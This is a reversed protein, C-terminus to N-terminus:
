RPRRRIGIIAPRPMPSLAGAVNDPWNSGKSVTRSQTFLSGDLKLMEITRTLTSGDGIPMNEGPHQVSIIVQEGVFTPGTFECRAPGYAFPFLQGADPGVLPVCFLFNNGFVGVLNSTNGKQTHDITTQSPTLGEGFGNHLGTSMDTVGWLDGDKDFALNDVAAFGTGDVSGAEGAQVFREWKFSLGTGDIDEEIIKFLAGSQQTAAVPAGYKAVVFIRSDPYGDSGPAGDTLAIIVERRNRPNIEIDEPRASPTGGILNGALFADALAAGRSEYFDGLVKGRYDPLATTENTLDVVFFGGDVTQGAVGNRRPLRIRGNQQATGLAALEVSALDSPSRPDTSTDLLLPIWTGSGDPEFRAVCLTGEEFLRSNAKRTPEGVNDASVFKWVHGGRRDDGMYAVLPRRPSVRLAINEHRFRGLATHKRPPVEGRPDIEVIWGYKEGVLGFEKGTTGDLYGTQTGDPRVDETVGVFFASSAQFNEEASLATQWPTTGGSCNFATGIIKNGLGDTSLPFVETAAPGTGILYHDDGQQHPRNGWGTVTEYGDSRGTNIALGSLGTLRWNRPDRARVEYQGNAGRHIRVISAGCNYLMEGLLERTRTTPLAFGVVAEFSTAAPPTALSAPTEPALTSFPFSVYEHNMYLLGDLPSAGPTGFFATYDNNYGVYQNPDSFVRDGWRVIVYREFEPAVVVDDLVTYSALSPDPSAPLITGTGLGTGLYSSRETYVPLPHPLRVPTFAGPWAAEARRTGIDIGNGDLRLAGAAATAGFFALLQRRTIATM